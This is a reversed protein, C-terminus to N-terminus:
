SMRRGYNENSFTKRYQKWGFFNGSQSSDSLAMAAHEFTSWHGSLALRDHLEIDKHRDMTGDHNLYSVRACRAVSLKIMGRIGFAPSSERQEMVWEMDGERIFPLHWAGEHLTQPTAKDYIRRMEKAVWAIEPQADPHDRLHFWNEYDTASVITTILMWPELLRNALQKHLGVEALRDSWAVAEDRASLWTRKAMDAETPHLEERAQMGSQNKGWYIPMAPDNLVQERLRHQPIARSSSSNRSFARHTMLEAHIFRQYTLVWSTLRCGSPGLSDSIIEVKPPM